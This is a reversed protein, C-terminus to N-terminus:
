KTQCFDCVYGKSSQGTTCKDRAWNNCITCMIWDERPPSEYKESCFICYYEEENENEEFVRKLNRVGKGKVQPKTKTTKTTKKTQVKEKKIKREVQRKQKEELQYKIPTSSLIQSHKKNGRKSTTIKPIVPVNTIEALLVPTSPPATNITVDMDTQNEPVSTANQSQSDILESLSQEAATERVSTSSEQTQSVNSEDLSMNEFCEKFKDTDIPHIGAVRFGSVAKSINATKNYANTFLEGVEYQTIRKGPNNVMYLECERNYAMKLSSFFTLDLPQMKHSVHPPLSLVHLNHERFLKYAGLSIHSEHNDLIILVPEEKTPKVFSIFHQLYDVFISENIWGSDSVTAIMDRNCGKLLLESMRKRKFIFMPPVYIGNASVACVVTTTVSREGSTAKAVQKLGKPALIKSNKQVTSIGTEDINFIRHSPFSHKTQLAELQDFFLKVETANFATIRNLSTAEPTRLSISPHRSMFSYYWDKGALQSEKNFKHKLKNAEAFTFAIKRLSKPTIGYFSECCDLIYRELQDEQNKNFVSYRGKKPKKFVEQNVQKFLTTKPVSYKIAAKGLTLQKSRVDQIARRLDEIEYRPTTKREYHRPM